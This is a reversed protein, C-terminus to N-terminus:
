KLRELLARLTAAASGLRQRVPLSTHLDTSERMLSAEATDLAELEAATLRLREIEDAAEPGDPNRHWRPSGAVTRRLRDVIDGAVSGASAVSRENTDSM